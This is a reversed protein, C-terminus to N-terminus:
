IVKSSIKHNFSIDELRLIKFKNGVPLWVLCGQRTKDHIELVCLKVRYLITIIFNTEIAGPLGTFRTKNPTIKKHIVYRDLTAVQRESPQLSIPLFPLFIEFISTITSYAHRKLSCGEPSAHSASSRESIFFFKPHCNM